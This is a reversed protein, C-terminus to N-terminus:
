GALADDGDAVVIYAVGEREATHRADDEIEEGIVAASAAEGTARRLIRARQAARIVDNEQVTVSIEAVIHSPQGDRDNGSVVLDVRGLDMAEADTINDSDAAVDIIGGPQWAQHSVTASSFGLLRRVLRPALRAAEKEYRSGVSNAIRGSLVTMERRTDTQVETLADLRANTDTQVETLADLRANTEVQYEAQGQALTDLRANTKAQVETLTNLRANTEIQYEAQGQALADLRANTEIQYESQGQALADLRANTEIQYESQGQALADLRANTEIQYEALVASTKAQAQALRDLQANTQVQAETLAAVSEQLSVVIGSLAALNDTLAAIKARDEAAAASVQQVFGTYADAMQEAMAGMAQRISASFEDMRDALADIDRRNRMALEAVAPLNAPPTTTM